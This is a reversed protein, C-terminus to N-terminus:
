RLSQLHDDNLVVVVKTEARARVEVTALPDGVVRSRFPTTADGAERVVLVLEYTGPRVGTWVPLRHELFPQFRELEDRLYKKSGRERLWLGCGAQRLVPELGRAWPDPGPGYERTNRWIKEDLRARPLRLEKADGTVVVTGAARVKLETTNAAIPYGPFDLFTDEVHEGFLRVVFKEAHEPARLTALGDAGTTVPRLLRAPVGDDPIEPTMPYASMPSRLWRDNRYSEIPDQMDLMQELLRTSLIGQVLVGAIPQGKEDVVCVTQDHLQPLSVVIPQTSAGLVCRVWESPWTGVRLAHVKVRYAGAVMGEVEIRGDRCAVVRRTAKGGKDPVLHIAVREANAPLGEVQFTVRDREGLEIPDLAGGMPIVALRRRHNPHHLENDLWLECQPPTDDRGVFCFSGDDQTQAL